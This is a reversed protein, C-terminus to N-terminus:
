TVKFVDVSVNSTMVFAVPWVYKAVIPNGM